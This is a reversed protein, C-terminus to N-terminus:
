IIRKHVFFVKDLEHNENEKGYLFTYKGVPETGGGEWRVDQVGVLVLNYRSLKRWVAMLFGVRYLTRVNWLGFRMDM